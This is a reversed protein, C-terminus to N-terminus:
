MNLETPAHHPCHLCWLFRVRHSSFHFVWTSFEWCMYAYIWSYWKLNITFPVFKQIHPLWIWFMHILLLKPLLQYILLALFSPKYNVAVSKFILKYKQYGKTNGSEEKLLRTIFSLVEWLICTTNLIVIISVVSIYYQHTLIPSVIAGFFGHGKISHYFDLWYGSILNYMIFGFAFVFIVNEAIRWNVNLKKTFSM